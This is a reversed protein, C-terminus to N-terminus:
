SIRIGCEHCFGMGDHSWTDGDYASCGQTRGCPMVLREGVAWARIQDATTPLPARAQPPEPLGRDARLASQVAEVLWANLSCDLIECHTIIENKLWGPLRIQLYNQSDPNAPQPGRPV